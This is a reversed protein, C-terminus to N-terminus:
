FCGNFDANEKGSQLVTVPLFPCSSNMLYNHAYSMANHREDISAKSGVWCFAGNNHVLLFVDNDDLLSKDVKGKAIETSKLKGSEDSVKIM